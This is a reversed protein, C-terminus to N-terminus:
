VHKLEAYMKKLRKIEVTLAKADKWDKLERATDRAGELSQVARDIRDYAKDQKPRPPKKEELRLDYGNIATTYGVYRQGWATTPATRAIHDIMGYRRLDNSWASAIGNGAPRAAIMIHGYKGGEYHLAAGLPAAAPNTGPHKDEDDAGLWHAWASAFMAPIGYSIRCDMLCYGGWNKTPTPATGFPKKQEAQFWDLAEDYNRLSESM